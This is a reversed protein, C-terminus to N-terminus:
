EGKSASHVFWEIDNVAEKLQELLQKAEENDLIGLDVSANGVEFSCVAHDYLKRLNFKM